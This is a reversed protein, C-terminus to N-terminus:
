NSPMRTAEQVNRAISTIIKLRRRWSINSRRLFMLIGATNVMHWQSCNYRFLGGRPSLSRRGRLSSLRLPTTSPCSSRSDRGPRGRGLWFCKYQRMVSLSPVMSSRQETHFRALNSQAMLWREFSRSFHKKALVKQMAAFFLRGIVSQSLDSLDM